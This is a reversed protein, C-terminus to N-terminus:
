NEKVDGRFYKIFINIFSLTFKLSNIKPDLHIYDYYM